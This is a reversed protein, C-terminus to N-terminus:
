RNFPACARTLWEAVQYGNLVEEAIRADAETFLEHEPYGLKRLAPFLESTGDTLVAGGWCHQVAHWAEHKLTDWPEHGKPCLTITRTSPLYYGQLGPRRACLKSSTGMVVRVGNRSLSEFLASRETTQANAALGTLVVAAGVAAFALRKLM